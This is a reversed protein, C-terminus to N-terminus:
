SNAAVPSGSAPQANAEAKKSAVERAHDRLMQEVQAIPPLGQTEVWERTWNEDVKSGIVVASSLKWAFLYIMGNPLKYEGPYISPWWKSFTRTSATKRSGQWSTGASTDGSLDFLDSSDKMGTPMGEKPTVAAAVM